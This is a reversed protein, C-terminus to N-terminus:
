RFAGRVRLVLTRPASDTLVRVSQSYAGLRSGARATVVLSAARGAPIVVPLDSTVLCTCTPKAGLVTIPRQTHNRLSFTVSAPESQSLTGFDRAYVDPTLGDGRVYALASALSGFRRTGVVFLASFGVNVLILNTALWSMWLKRAPAVGPGRSREAGRRVPPAIRSQNKNM